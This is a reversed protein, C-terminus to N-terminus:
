VKNFADHKIKKLDDVKAIPYTPVTVGIRKNLATLTTGNGIELFLDVGAALLARIAQDWLVPATVQRELSEKILAIDRTLAGTVNLAIPCHGQRWPAAELHPALAAAADDMLGSHFAGHVNLPVVRGGRAVARSSGAAVADHTGSIVIQGPSNFNAVWLGGGVAAVIEEVVLADLGLIVAMTGPHNECADNMLQGRAQVLALGDAISLYGAAALGTYEGLSLGAVYAPTLQPAEQAIVALAAMSVTYLAVQSNATTTLLELPGEFILDSLSRKLLDDVEEFILRACVFTDFLEKGMGVTQAGQGPFLFAITKGNM